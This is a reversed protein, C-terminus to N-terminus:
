GEEKKRWHISDYSTLRKKQRFKAESILGDEQSEAVVTYVRLNGSKGLCSQVGQDHKNYM